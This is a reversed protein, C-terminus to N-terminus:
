WPGVNAEGKLSDVSGGDFCIALAHELEITAETSRKGADKNHGVNM